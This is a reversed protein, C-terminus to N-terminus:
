AKGGLKPGYFELSQQYTWMKEYAGCNELLASHTGAGVVHGEELVYITDSNTVNALRHSIMIITKVKSLEHILQIIKNESEVDINSTAEDFIYVPSDHLLARALALRQRQGGSLNSSSETILTDLGEQNRLFDALSVKELAEWLEEDTAEPKAISLNERVSGQFLVSNHRVRTITRMLSTEDINQLQIGGVSVSGTYGTNEAMLIGALTSKGSGSEGVISVFGGPPVDICIDKLIQREQDYSFNMHEVKITTDSGLIEGEKEPTELDLIRFIKDSAAMGNMATHFFSGLARLPLFFEASLLIFAVCGWLPLAGSWYASLSMCVGIAAGGYAVLDMISISNLQMMLVRMTMKRFQESEEAMQKARYGDTNYIKLTTLGELSELFSDGLQTYKGWYKSLLKKAIKQVFMISIPIVPVLILLVIAISPRIFVMVAFLTIPALMSYFFQPLFGGFYSELQEVGETCLQIAEGTPVKESYSPGLDQLKQYVESRLTRKVTRSANFSAESAQISLFYRLAICVIMVAVLLFFPIKEFGGLLIKQLSFAMSFVFIINSILMLWQMLVNKKVFSM